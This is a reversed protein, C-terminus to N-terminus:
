FFFREIFRLLHFTSCIFLIAAYCYFDIIMIMIMIMGGVKVLAFLAAQQLLTDDSQCQHFLGTILKQNSSQIISFFPLSLLLHLTTRSHKSQGRDDNYYIIMLMMMVMFLLLLM